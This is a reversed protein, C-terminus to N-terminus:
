ANKKLWDQVIKLHGEKGKQTKLWEEHKKVTNIVTYKSGGHKKLKEEWEQLLKSLDNKNLDEVRVKGDLVKQLM